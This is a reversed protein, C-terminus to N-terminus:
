SYQGRTPGLGSRNAAVICNAAAYECQKGPSDISFFLSSGWDLRRERSLGNRMLRRPLPAVFETSCAHYRASRTPMIGSDPPRARTIM